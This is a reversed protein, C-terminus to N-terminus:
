GKEYVCPDPFRRRILRGVEGRDFSGDSTSLWRGPKVARHHKVKVDQVKVGGVGHANGYCTRLMVPGADITDRLRGKEMPMPAHVGYFMGDPWRDAVKRVLQAYRDRRTGYRAAVQRTGGLHMPGVEGTPRMCFFDDNFLLFRESVDPSDAVAALNRLVSGYKDSPNQKVELRGVQVTWSPQFGALWVRGHTLNTLSRLSWRLEDNRDGERVLYVVDPVDGGRDDVTM